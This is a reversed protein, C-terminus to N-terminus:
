VFSAPGGDHRDPPGEFRPDPSLQGGDGVEYGCPLGVRCGDYVMGDVGREAHWAAHESAAPGHAVNVIGQVVGDDDCWLLCRRPDGPESRELFVDVIPGM